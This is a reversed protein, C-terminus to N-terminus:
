LAPAATAAMAGNSLFSSGNITLTGGALYIGGGDADSGPNGNGDARTSGKNGLALNNAITVQLLTVQGGDILLGGGLAATGSLMGGDTAVGSTISLNQVIVTGANAAVEFIRDTWAPAGPSDIVTQGQGQGVITLTKALGTTNQILLHGNAANTLKYEGAALMITNSADSNSAAQALADRLQSADPDPLPNFVAPACRVEL